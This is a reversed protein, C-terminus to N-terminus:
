DAENNTGDEHKGDENKGQEIFDKEIVLAYEKLTEIKEKGTDVLIRPKLMNEKYEDKLTGYAGANKGAMLYLQSNKAFKLHKHIKNNTLDLILTDNVKLEQNESLINKGNSLNLQTKKGPLTTKNIIKFPKLSSNKPSINILRFKGNEDLILRYRQKTKQIEIVDMIGIPFRPNTRPKKDVLIIKQNLIKRCERSTSAYKLYEKLLINLNIASAIPHPGPAVGTIWKTAKRKIPWNKGAKARSLHQSM